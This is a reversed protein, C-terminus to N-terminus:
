ATIGGDLIMSHGAIFSAEDSALFLIAAAIEAPTGLRGIPLRKELKKRIVPDGKHIEDVMPTDTFGPCVANVRVGERVSELAATKTLGIVGHKSAAYAAHMPFGTLGAVSAINIITGAHHRKMRELQGQMCHFVGSLNIGIVRAWEEAPYSETPAQVGGIGAANVAIDLEGWVTDAQEFGAYVQNVDTVDVHIFWGKGGEKEIEEVISQGSEEQVDWIAINGGERAFALAAAKGIGSSGGTIIIKKNEFRM